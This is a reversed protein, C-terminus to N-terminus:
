VNTIKICIKNKFAVIKQGIERDDQGGTYSKLHFLFFLFSNIIAPPMFTSLKKKTHKSDQYGQRWDSIPLSKSSGQLM